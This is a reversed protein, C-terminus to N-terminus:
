RAWSAIWRGTFLSGLARIGSGSWGIPSTRHQSGREWGIAFLTTIAIVPVFRM